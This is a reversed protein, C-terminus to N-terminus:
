PGKQGFLGTLARQVVSTVRPPREHAFPLPRCVEMAALGVRATLAGNVIGEGFRRSLKSLVGGGAVSQILDDGVAVAGTAALHTLVSRALRWSGLTGGRGGYVLAIRRIMRLNSTLAAVVDALALPVVATVLAVQRAAAEVERTAAADLPALLSREALAVMGDADFVDGKRAALEERGRRTDPRGAYFASLRDTLKRAAALDTAAAAERHFDDIRGLRSLAALERIAIALCVCLFLAVMATAVWGLLPNAALLGTVFEWLAVSLAFTLLAALASFFWRALGRERRAALLAVTQMTRGSAPPAIDDDPVPPAAAPDPPTTDDDLTQAGRRPAPEPTELDFLVARRRSDKM